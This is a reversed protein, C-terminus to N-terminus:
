NTYHSLAVIFKSAVKILLKDDATVFPVHLYEALAIYSADYSSIDFKIALDLTKEMLAESSYAIFNLTLFANYVETAENTEIRFTKVATRLINNIEYYLLVPIAISITNATFKEKIELAKESGSEPFFWKAIVSSDLILTNSM